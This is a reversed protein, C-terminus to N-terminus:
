NSGRTLLTTTEVRRYSRMWRELALYNDRMDAPDRSVKFFTPNWLVRVTVSAGRVGRVAYGNTFDFYVDTEVYGSGLQDRLKQEWVDIYPLDPSGGQPARIIYEQAQLVDVRGTRSDYYWVEDIIIKKNVDSWPFYIRRPSGLLNVNTGGVYCEASGLDNDSGIHVLRYASAAKLVHVAWEGNGQYMARVSRGQIDDLRTVTPQWPANPDGTPYVIDAALLGNGPNGDLDAFTVLGTSKDVQYSNPLIVGGTELDLLVFDPEDLVNPGAPVSLGLGPNNLGDVNVSGKVKLSGLLLKQQYPQISPVRFDDRMNRWDFVTYDARAVLPEKGGNPRQVYYNFAAPNVLVFGMNSSLVAYEFPDTSFSGPSTLENYVRAVRVSGLMAQLFYQPDYLARGSMDQQGVLRKLSVLWYNGVRRFFGNPDNANAPDLTASLIVDYQRISGNDDYDFSYAFRYRRRLNQSPIWVQDEGVFDYDGSTDEAAVVYFQYNRGIAGNPDPRPYDGAMYGVRRVMDNGYIELLGANSGSAFYIPAFQLSLLCGYIGVGNAGVFRPSPVVRGEGIIRSFLNAGSIKAWHGIKNGTLNIVDGDSDIGRVVSPDFPMLNRELHRPNKVFAIGTSVNYYEVPVIEEALLSSQGKLRESESRALNQAVTNGRTTKLINLGTPFIQVIALVGVLFVVIVVLIEVLTGGGQKIRNGWAKKIM